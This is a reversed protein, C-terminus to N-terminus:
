DVPQIDCFGRTLSVMVTHKPKSPPGNAVWYDYVLATETSREVVRDAWLSKIIMVGNDVCGFSHVGEFIRVPEAEPGEVPTATCTVQKPNIAFKGARGGARGERYSYEEGNPYKTVRLHFVIPRDLGVKGDRICVLRQATKYTIVEQDQATAENTSLTQLTGIAFLLFFFIQKIPESVM